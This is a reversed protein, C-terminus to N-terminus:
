SFTYGQGQNSDSSPGSPTGSMFGSDEVGYPSPIPPSPRRARPSQQFESTEGIETKYSSFSGDYSSNDGSSPVSYTYDYSNPKPNEVRQAAAEGDIRVLPVVGAGRNQRRIDEYNTSSKALDYKKWLQDIRPKIRDRCTGMFMLNSATLSAIGMIAYFPWGKPGFHYQAPLRTRALYLSGLIAGTIPLGRTMTVETTCTRMMETLEKQEDSSLKNLLAHIQENNLEVKQSSDGTPQSYMFGDSSSM